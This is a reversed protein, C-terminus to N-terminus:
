NKTNKPMGNVLQLDSYQERRWERIPNPHIHSIHKVGLLRLVDNKQIKLYSNLEIVNRENM